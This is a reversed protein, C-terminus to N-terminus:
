QSREGREDVHWAEEWAGTLFVAADDSVAGFKQEGVGFGGNWLDSDDGSFCVASSVIDHARFM